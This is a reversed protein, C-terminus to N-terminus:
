RADVTVASEVCASSPGAALKSSECAIQTESCHISHAPGEEALYCWLSQEITHPKAPQAAGCGSLVLIVVLIAGIIAAAFLAAAIRGSM